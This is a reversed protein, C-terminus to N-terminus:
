KQSVEGKPKKTERSKGDPRPDLVYAGLGYGENGARTGLCKICTAMADYPQQANGACGQWPSVPDSVVESPVRLNTPELRFSFGNPSLPFPFLPFARNQGLWCVQELLGSYVTPAQAIRWGKIRKSISSGRCVSSDRLGHLTNSGPWALPQLSQNRSRGGGRMAGRYVPDQPVIRTSLCTNLRPLQNNM